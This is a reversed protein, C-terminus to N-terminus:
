RSKKYKRESYIESLSESDDILPRFLEKLMDERTQEEIDLITYIENM